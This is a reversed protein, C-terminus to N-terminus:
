LIIYPVHAQDLQDYFDPNQISPVIFIGDMGHAIMADIRANEKEASEGSSSLTLTYGEKSCVKEIGKYMYSYVPNCVDPVIIGLTMSKSTKLQSAAFNKRYGLRQAAEHVQRTTEPGIDPMNRLARSVTNVSVNLEEALDKLTVPM